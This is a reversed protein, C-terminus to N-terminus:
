MCVCVCVCEKMRVGVSEARGIKKNRKRVCVSWEERDVREYRFVCMCVSVCVSVCSARALTERLPSPAAHSASPYRSLQCALEWAIWALCVCVARQTYRSFLRRPSLRLHPLHNNIFLYRLHKYYEV